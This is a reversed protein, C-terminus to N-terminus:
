VFSRSRKEKSNEIRNAKITQKKNNNNNVAHAANRSWSGALDFPLSRTIVFEANMQNSFALLWSQLAM